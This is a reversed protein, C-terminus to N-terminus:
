SVECTYSHTVDVNRIFDTLLFQRRSIVFSFVTSMEKLQTLFTLSHFIFNGPLLEKMVWLWPRAHVVGFLNKKQWPCSLTFDLCFLSLAGRAARSTLQKGFPVCLSPDIISHPNAPIEWRWGKMNCPVLLQQKIRGKKRQM